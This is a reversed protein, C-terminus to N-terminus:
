KFVSVIDLQWAGAHNSNTAYRDLLTLFDNRPINISGLTQLHTSAVQCDLMKFGWAALQKMLWVLGLKSADTHRSFMSEGFFVGGMAIGYLGGVLEGEMWVEVSHAYGLRHLENYALQMAATIWTGPETQNRRMGACAQMVEPFARDLTVQYDRRRLAKRLSRSIHLADPFLVARPDPCWWLIPQGVSYWPFIGHRYAYLLRAPSLDGGAALLGDPEHLATRPDPFTDPTDDPTIWALRPIGNM